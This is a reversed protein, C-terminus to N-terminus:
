AATARIVEGPAGRLAGFAGEIAGALRPLDAMADRDGSIGFALKGNYSAIAVGLSTAGFLPVYPYIELMEGGLLYLPFPPGPVNTVVLDVTRQVRGLKSVASVVSPPLHEALGVWFDMGQWQRAAKLRTMAVAIDRLRGVPSVEGVPLEVSMVSAQNGYSMPQSLDRTSVPVMAKVNAGATDVGRERLLRGVADSVIALAVDNLKCGHRRRIAKVDDLALSATEFRRYAGVWRSLSARRRTVLTARAWDVVSGALESARGILEGREGTTALARTPERLQTARQWRERWADRLLADPSPAAHPQWPQQEPARAPADRVADFLVTVLHAASMGDLVCHHIKFILGVRRGTMPLLRMEWLPRRRSLTAAMIEATVRRAGAGDAHESAPAARVHAAVDGHAAAVRM